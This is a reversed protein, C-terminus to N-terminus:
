SYNAVIFKVICGQEELRQTGARLDDLLLVDSFSARRPSASDPAIDPGYAYGYGHAKLSELFLEEIQSETIKPM